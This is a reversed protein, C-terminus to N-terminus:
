RTLVSVPAGSGFFDKEAVHPDPLRGGLRVIVMPRGLRDAEVLLNQDFPVTKVAGPQELPSVRAVQPQELYIVKTVLRGALALEIEESTIEIPIPFKKAQGPPPHLRDLVEISPYLEIGPFEPMDSIRLRYTYGVMVGLLEGAPVSVPPERWGSYVTTTGDSPLNVQIPQVYKPSSKGLVAAWHAAMGPPVTQDLPAYKGSQGPLQAELPLASTLLVVGALLGFSRSWRGSQEGTNSSNSGLRFM